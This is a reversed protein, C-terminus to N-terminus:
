DYVYVNRIVIIIGMVMVGIMLLLFLMNVANIPEVIGPIMSNNATTILSDKVQNMVTYGIMLVLGVGFLGVIAHVFGGGVDFGEFTEQTSNNAVNHKTKVIEDRIEEYHEIKESSQATRYNKRNAFYFFGIICLGIYVGEIILGIM